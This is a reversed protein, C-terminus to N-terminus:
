GFSQAIREARPHFNSTPLSLTFRTERYPQSSVSLEGGHMRVIQRSLSLGIGSGTNKTTFFPVFIDEQIDHPIGPGNDAIEILTATETQTAAILIEGNEQGELAEIANKLLNILVQSLQEEDAEIKIEEKGPHITLRINLRQLDPQFLLEINRIRDSLSFLRPTPTQLRALQRYSNTFNMLNQSQSRITDLGRVTKGITADTIENSGKITEKNRYYSLLTGSLSVIPAISNMIEHTLVRMLKDYSEYEKRLLEREFEKQKSETMLRHIRNFAAHLRRQEESGTDQPFYLMSENDEIADLFLQIRRNSTNLYYVLVGVLWFAIMLTIGGLIIAKGSVIGALGVGAVLLILMVQFVIRLYIRTSFLRNM